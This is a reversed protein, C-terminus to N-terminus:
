RKKQFSIGVFCGGLLLLPLCVALLVVPSRWAQFFFVSYAGLAAIVMGGTCEWRWVVYILVFVVVWPVANPTNLLIGRIGGGYDGSGSLLAFIFWFTAIFLAVVRLMTRITSTLSMSETYCVMYWYGKGGM